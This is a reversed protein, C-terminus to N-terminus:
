RCFHIIHCCYVINLRHVKSKWAFIFCTCEFTLTVSIAIFGIIFCDVSVYKCVIIM